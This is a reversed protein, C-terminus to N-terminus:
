SAARTRSGAAPTSSSTRGSGSVADSIAPSRRSCASPPMWRTASWNVSCPASALRTTTPGTSNRPSSAGTVQDADGEGVPGAHRVAQVGIWILFLVGGWKFLQFLLDWRELLPGLGM